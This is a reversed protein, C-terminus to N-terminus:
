IEEVPIISLGLVTVPFSCPLSFRNTVEVFGKYNLPVVVKHFERHNPSEKSWVEDFEKVETVGDRHVLKYNMFM